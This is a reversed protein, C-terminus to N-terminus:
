YYDKREFNIVFDGDDISCVFLPCNNKRRDKNAAACAGRVLKEMDSSSVDPFLENSHTRVIIKGCPNNYKGIIEALREIDGSSIKGYTEVLMDFFNYFSPYLDMIM